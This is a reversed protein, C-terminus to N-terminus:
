TYRKHHISHYAGLDEKQISPDTEGAAPFVVLCCEKATMGSQFNSQSFFYAEDLTMDEEPNGVDQSLDINSIFVQDGRGLFSGICLDMWARSSGM